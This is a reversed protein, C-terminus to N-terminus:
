PRIQNLTDHRNWRRQVSGRERNKERIACLTRGATPIRAANRPSQVPEAPITGQVSDGAGGEPVVDWPQFSLGVSSFSACLEEVKGRFDPRSTNPWPADDVKCEGCPIAWWCSFPKAFEALGSRARDRREFRPFHAVPRWGIQERALIDAESVDAQEASPSAHACPLWQNYRSSRRSKMSAVTRASRVHATVIV